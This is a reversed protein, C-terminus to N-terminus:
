WAAAAAEFIAIKRERSDRKRCLTSLAQDGTRLHRHAL